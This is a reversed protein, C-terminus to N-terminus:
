TFITNPSLVKFCEGKRPHKKTPNKQAFTFKENNALVAHTYVCRRDVVAKGTTQKIPHDGYGRVWKNIVKNVRFFESYSKM